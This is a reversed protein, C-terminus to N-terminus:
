RFFDRLLLSRRKETTGSEIPKIPPRKMAIETTPDWFTEDKPCLPPRKKFFFSKPRQCSATCLATDEASCYECSKPIFHMGPLLRESPEGSFSHNDQFVSFLGLPHRCQQVCYSGPSNVFILTWDRYYM